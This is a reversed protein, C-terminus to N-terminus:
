TRDRSSSQDMTRTILRHTRAGLSDQLDGEVTIDPMAKHIEKIVADIESVQELSKPGAQGYINQHM